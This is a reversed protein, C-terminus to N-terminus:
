SGIEVMERGMCASGREPKAGAAKRLSGEIDSFDVPIELDSHLCPKLVGRALLRLRNCRSCSPPRRLIEPGPKGVALDPRAGSKDRGGASAAEEGAGGLVESSDRKEVSLSFHNILQLTLGSEECFRKLDEPVGPATEGGAAEPVVANIKVPFGAKRAADIGGLVKGVDGGRTIRRYEEPDLTDLSVNVSSLGAAKLDRALPALLTGNTTMGITLLPDVQRLLGVLEVIGKKVLPEGGTLRIKEIGLSCGVRVIDRVQEHSLMDAHSRKPVGGPPMCYVCRLNCKDTVSIRLYTIRRDFSDYLM